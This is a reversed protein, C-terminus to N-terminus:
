PETNNYIDSIQQDSLDTDYIRVDEITGDIYYASSLSFGAGIFPGSVDGGFGVTDSDGLSPQGDIYPTVNTGDYKGAVHHWTNLSFTNDVTSRQQIGGDWYAMSVADDASDLNLFMQGNAGNNLDSYIHNQYFRGPGNFNDVNVWAMVTVNGGGIESQVSYVNELYDNSGDFEFAGSNAGANVDTVGGSAQYTAGDVTGDYATSDGSQGSNFLATVDDANSGGYFSSDFPYWAVLNSYAVPLTQASFVTQGDVTIETVDTGAITAGTIDTGDISTPIM